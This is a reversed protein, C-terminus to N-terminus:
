FKIQSVLKTTTIKINESNYIASGVIAHWNEGAAKGCDSIEGGQAIFGPAYLTFKINREEFFVRYKQVLEVKNGPVVFDTVGMNISAEFIRLPANNSIFGQESELFKNHTMHAGILVTLGEDQCSKIWKEETELGSFPFLIVADIESEKIIKAYKFGLNPIDTGAKQHDYIIPLNTYRRTIETIHKLGYKLALLIGIKYGGIGPIDHTEKVINEFDSDKLVDCAPIISRKIKILNSM